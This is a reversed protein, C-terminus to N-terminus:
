FLQLGTSRATVASSRVGLHHEPCMLSINWPRVRMLGRQWWNEEQWFEAENWLKSRFNIYKENFPKLQPSLQTIKLFHQRRLSCSTWGQKKKNDYMILHVDTWIPIFASYLAQHVMLYYLINMLPRILGSSYNLVIICNYHSYWELPQSNM